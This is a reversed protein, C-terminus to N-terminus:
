QGPAYQLLSTNPPLHNLSSCDGTPDTKSASVREERRCVEVDPLRQGNKGDVREVGENKRAAAEGVIIGRLAGRALELGFEVADAGVLGGPDFSCCGPLQVGSEVCRSAGLGTSADGTLLCAASHFSSSGAAELELDASAVSAALEPAGVEAKEKPRTM